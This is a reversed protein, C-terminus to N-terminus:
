PGHQDEDENLHETDPQHQRQHVGGIVLLPVLVMGAVLVLVPVLM